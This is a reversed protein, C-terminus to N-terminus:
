SAEAAPPSQAERGAETYISFAHRMEEDIYSHIIKSIM